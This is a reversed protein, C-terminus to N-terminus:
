VPWQGDTAAYAPETGEGGNGNQEPIYIYEGSVAFFNQSVNVPFKITFEM